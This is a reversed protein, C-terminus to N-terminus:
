SNIISFFINGRTNCLVSLYNTISIVIMSNLIMEEKNNENSEENLKIEEYIKELIIELRHITFTELILFLNRDVLEYNKNSYYKLNQFLHFLNNNSNSLQKSNINPFVLNYFKELYNDNNQNFLDSNNINKLLTQKMRTFRDSIKKIEEDDEEDNNILEDYNAYIDEPIDILNKSLIEVRKILFLIEKRDKGGSKDINSLDIGQKTFQEIADKIAEDLEMDFDEMNEKVVEDFTDQSIRKM